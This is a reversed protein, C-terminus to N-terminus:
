PARLFAPTCSVHPPSDELDRCDKDRLRVCTRQLQMGVQRVQLLTHHTSLTTAVHGNCPGMCRKDMSLMAQPEAADAPFELSLGWLLVSRAAFGVHSGTHMLPTCNTTAAPFLLCAALPELRL